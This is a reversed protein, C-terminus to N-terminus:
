LTLSRVTVGEFERAEHSSLIISGGNNIHGIMAAQLQAQHFADLASFPEDLLWCDRQLAYFRALSLRKKQGQSLQSAFDHRHRELATWHLIDAMPKVSGQEALMGFYINEEVTLHPEIALKHAIYGFANKNHWKIQGAQPAMLGVMAKMLTTKGAGNVGKVHLLTSHGLQFSLNKIILRDDIEISLNNISLM